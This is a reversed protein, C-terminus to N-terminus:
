LFNEEQSLEPVSVKSFRPSQKLLDETIRLVDTLQWLENSVRPIVKFFTRRMVQELTSVVPTTQIM